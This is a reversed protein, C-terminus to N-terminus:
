RCTFSEEIIKSCSNYANVLVAISILLNHSTKSTNLDTGMVYFTATILLALLHCNISRSFSSRIIEFRHRCERISEGICVHYLLLKTTCHLWRWQNWLLNDLYVRSTHFSQEKIV